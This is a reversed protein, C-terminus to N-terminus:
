RWLTLAPHCTGGSYVVRVLILLEDDPPSGGGGFRSEVSYKKVISDDELLCFLDEGHGHMNTPVEGDHQPIRLADFVVKMQNDLDIAGREDGLFVFQLECNLGNHWSVLPIASFGCVEIRFFPRHGPLATLRAAKHREYEAVPLGERFFHALPEKQWLRKLQRSFEHRLEQKFGSRKDGNKGDQAAPVPGNFKLTIDLAGGEVSYYDVSDRFM